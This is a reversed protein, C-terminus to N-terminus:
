LQSWNLICTDVSWKTLQAMKSILKWFESKKKMWIIQVCIWQLNYNKNWLHSFKNFNTKKFKKSHINLINPITSSNLVICLEHFGRSKQCMQRKGLRRKKQLILIKTIQCGNLKTPMYWTHRDKSINKLAAMTFNATSNDELSKELQSLFFTVWLRSTMECKCLISIDESLSM